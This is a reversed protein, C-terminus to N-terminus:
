STRLLQYLIGAIFCALWFAILFLATKSASKMGPRIPHNLRSKM